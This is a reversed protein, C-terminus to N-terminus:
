RNSISDLMYEYNTQRSRTNQFSDQLGGPIGFDERPRCGVKIDQPYSIRPRFRHTTYTWPYVKKRVLSDQSWSHAAPFIVLFLLLAKIYMVSLYSIIEKHSHKTHFAPEPM